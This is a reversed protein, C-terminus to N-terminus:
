HQNSTRIAINFPTDTNKLEKPSREDPYHDEYIYIYIRVALDKGVDEV